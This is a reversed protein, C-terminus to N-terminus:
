AMLGQAFQKNDETRKIYWCKNFNSWRFGKEKLKALITQDPKAPFRIEIGDKEDNETISIGDVKTPATTQIGIGDINGVYEFHPIMKRRYGFCIEYAIYKEQGHVDAKEIGYGTTLYNGHGGSWKETHWAFTLGQLSPIAGVVKRALAETERTTKTYALLLDDGYSAHPSYYDTMGDSDDYVKNLYIPMCGEPIEISNSDFEEQQKKQSDMSAKIANRHEILEEKTKRVDSILPNDKAYKLCKELNEQLSDYTALTIQGNFLGYINDLSQMVEENVPGGVLMMRCYDDQKDVVVDGELHNSLEVTAKAAWRIDKILQGIPKIKRPGVDINTWQKEAM